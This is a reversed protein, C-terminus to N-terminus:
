KLLSKLFTSFKITKINNRTLLIFCFLIIPLINPENGSPLLELRREAIKYFVLSTSYTSVVSKFDTKQRNLEPTQYKYKYTKFITIKRTFYKAFYINYQKLTINHM